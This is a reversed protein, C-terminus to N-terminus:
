KSANTQLNWSGTTKGGGRGDDAKQQTYTWNIMGYNFNVTEMPIDGGGGGITVSSIICRTLKYEMYPVKEDGGGSRTLQLTITPIHSGDSCKHNLLSSAKDLQKTISFDGHSCRGTTAGGATSASMNASQSVDHSYSLIEIQDEYGAATCEGPVGEILLYADFM